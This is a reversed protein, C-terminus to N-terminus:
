SFTSLKVKLSNCTEFSLATNKYQFIHQIQEEYCFSSINLTITVNYSYHVLTDEVPFVDVYTEKLKM